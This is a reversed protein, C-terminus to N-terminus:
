FFNNYFLFFFINKFGESFAISFISDEQNVLTKLTSIKSSIKKMIKKKEEVDNWMKLSIKNDNTKSSISIDIKKRSISQNQHKNNISM